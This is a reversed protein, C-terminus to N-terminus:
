LKQIYCVITKSEVGLHGFHVNKKKLKTVRQLISSISVPLGGAEPITAEFGAGGHVEVIEKLYPNCQM